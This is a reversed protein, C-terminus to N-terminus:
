TILPVRDSFKNKEYILYIVKIFVTCLTFFEKIDENLKIIASQAITEQLPDSIYAILRRYRIRSVPLSDGTVSRRTPNEM